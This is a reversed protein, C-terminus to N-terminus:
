LFFFLFLYIYISFFGNISGNTCGELGKSESGFPSSSLLSMSSLLEVNEGDERFFYDKQPHFLYLLYNFSPQQNQNNQKTKQKTKNQKTKGFGEHKM